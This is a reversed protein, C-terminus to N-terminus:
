IQFQGEFVKKADGKLILGSKTYKIKLMGGKLKVLSERKPNAIGKRIAVAVVACAGTGCSLTEGSGREYVRIKFKNNGLINVFETNIRDPFVKHNEFKKGLKELDLLDVDEKMFVVCHPNGMSVCCVKFYNDDIKLIEEDDLLTPIKKKDFNPLGMNVSVSNVKGDVIKLIIDKVGSLTEIKLLFKGNAKKINFIESKSLGLTSFYKENEFIEKALSRIANGCMKGESGDANFMIMKADAVSSKRIIVIGDGGVGFHRDSLMISLKSLDKLKNEFDEIFIYDNGTGQMKIFNM